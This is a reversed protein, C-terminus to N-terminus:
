YYYTKCNDENPMQCVTMKVRATAKNGECSEAASSAPGTGTGAGPAGAPGSCTPCPPSGPGANPGAPGSSPSGGNENGNPGPGAPSSPGSSSPGQQGPGSSSPGGPIGNVPPRSGPVPKKPKFVTNGGPGSSPRERNGEAASPTPAAGSASSTPQQGAAPPLPPENCDEDDVSGPQGPAGPSNPAAAGPAGGPVSGGSVRQSTTEKRTRTIIEVAEIVKLTTQSSLQNPADTNKQQKLEDFAPKLDNAVAKPAPKAPEPAKPHTTKVDVPKACGKDCVVVPFKDGEAKDVSRKSDKIPVPESIVPVITFEDPKAFSCVYTIASWHKTLETKEIHTTNTEIVGNGLERRTMSTIGISDFKEYTTNQYAVEKVDKEPYEKGELTFRGVNQPKRNPYYEEVTLNKTAVGSAPELKDFCQWGQLQENAKGTCKTRGIAAQIYGAWLMDRPPQPDKKFDEIGERYKERWFSDQEKSHFNHSSKCALCGMVDDMYSSSQETLCEKYANRAAVTANKSMKTVIECKLSIAQESICPPIVKSGGLQYTGFPHCQDGLVKKNGEIRNVLDGGKDGLVQRRQVASAAVGQLAALAGVITAANALM